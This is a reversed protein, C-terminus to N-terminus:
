QIFGGSLNTGSLTEASAAAGGVSYAACVPASTVAILSTSNVGTACVTEGSAVTIAGSYTTAPTCSSGSTTCYNIADSSTVESLTLSQPSVYSGAALSFIPVTGGVPPSVPGPYSGPAIISNSTETITNSGDTAANNSFASTTYASSNEVLIGSLLGNGVYQAPVFAPNDFRNGNLTVGSITQASGQSNYVIASGQNPGGDVFTNGSATIASVSQTNFSSESAIYLDTYGDKNDVYNGTFTINNGGSVELGRGSANALITNGTITNNNVASGDSVYSNNSVGDDGSHITLNNMVTIYSSGHIQSIADALTNEVTNNNVTGHACGISFIGVSPSGNIFLNQVSYNTAGNCYVMATAPPVLRTTAASTMAFNSFSGGSGTLELASASYNTPVLVSSSGLGFVTIGNATLTSSYAFTGAPIEATCGNAAAYTFTNQIATTNDTVGDGVAGGYSTILVNCGPGTPGLAAAYNYCHTTSNSFTQSPQAQVCMTEPSSITLPGTVATGPTCAGNLTTTCYYNLSTLNAANTNLNVTTNNVTTTRPLSYTGSPLTVLPAAAQANIYYTAVGVPVSDSLGTGGAVAYITESSSVTLPGAYKTGSTCGTAGNTAPQQTTSYCIIAGSSSTSLSVTQASTYSGPTVSFAPTAAGSALVSYTWTDIYALGTAVSTGGEFGVLNTNSVGTGGISSPLLGLGAAGPIDALYSTQYNAGTSQDTISESLIAGNYTLTVLFEDGSQMNIGSPAMDSYPNPPQPSEGSKYYGTFNAGPANTLTNFLDFKVVAASIPAGSPYTPQAPVLLQPQM